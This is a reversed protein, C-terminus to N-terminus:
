LLGGEEQGSRAARALQQQLELLTQKQEELEARRGELREQQQLCLREIVPYALRLEEETLGLLRFLDHEEVFRQLKDLVQAELQAEDLERDKIVLLDPLLHPLTAMDVLPVFSAIPPATEASGAQAQRCLCCLPTSAACVPRECPEGGPLGPCASHASQESHCLPCLLPPAWFTSPHVLWLFHGEGVDQVDGYMEENQSLLDFVQGERPRNQERLQRALCAYAEPISTYWKGGSCAAVTAATRMVTESWRIRGNTAVVVTSGPLGAAVSVVM